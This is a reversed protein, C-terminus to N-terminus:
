GGETEECRVAIDCTCRADATWISRSIPGLRFRYEKPALPGEGITTVFPGPTIVARRCVEPCLTSNIRMGEIHQRMQREAEDRASREAAERSFGAGRGMSFEAVKNEGCALPKKNKFWAIRWFLAGARDGGAVDGAADYAGEARGLAAMADFIEGQEFLLKGRREHIRAAEARYQRSLTEAVSAEGPNGNMRHISAARAYSDAAKEFAEAADRLRTKADTGVGRRLLGEGDRARGRALMAWDEGATEARRAARIHQGDAELQESEADAEAAKAETEQQGQDDRENPM